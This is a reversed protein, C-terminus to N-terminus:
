AAEELWRWLDPRGHRYALSATSKVNRRLAAVATVPSEGAERLMDLEDLVWGKHLRDEPEIEVPEPDNDIDDWSLPPPYGLQAATTRARKAGPTEPPVTMSLKEFLQKVVERTRITVHDQRLLVSVTGRKRGMMASLEVTTYGLAMLAGLRRRTGTADVGGGARPSEEPMVALVARATVHHIRTQKGRMIRSITEKAVGSKEGIAKYSMGAATLALVHNVMPGIPVFHIVGARKRAAHERAARTARETCAACRCGHTKYCTVTRGHLHEPGCEYKETM